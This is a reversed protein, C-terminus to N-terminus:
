LANHLRSLGSVAAPWGAYFALHTMAETLETDTLGHQRALALHDPLQEMRNLAVLAAVTVLSRDRPSLDKGQWLDGFLVTETLQALKPSAQALTDRNLTM